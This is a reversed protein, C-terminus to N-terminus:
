YRRLHGSYAWGTKSSGVHDVKYWVNGKSNTCKQTTVVKAGKNLFGRLSAGESFGNRLPTGDVTQMRQKLPACSFGNASATSAGAMPAAVGLVLTAVLGTVVRNKM